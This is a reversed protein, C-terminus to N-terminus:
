TQYGSEAMSESTERGKLYEGSKGLRDIWGQPFRPNFFLMKGLALVYCSVLMYKSLLPINPPKIYVTQCAQYIGRLGANCSGPNMKVASQKLVMQAFSVSNGNSNCSM